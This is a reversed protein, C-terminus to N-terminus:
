MRRTAVPSAHQKRRKSPDRFGRKVPDIPRTGPTFGPQGFQEWRDSFAYISHEKMWCGGPRLLDLFGYGILNDIARTFRGNSIGFRRKAEAYTFRLDSANVCIWKQKGRPGIRQMVRRTLFLLLLQPAVGRLSIFADSTTVRGYLLAM